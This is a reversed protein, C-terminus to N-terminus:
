ATVETFLGRGHLANISAGPRTGNALVVRKAGGNMAALAALMKPRMGDRVAGSALLEHVQRSTVLSVASSEDDPDVRLQDVDSLLLLASASMASAVAGAVFDANANVLVGDDFLSVPSIVPVAGAALLAELPGPSVDIARAVLGYRDDLASARIMSQDLGSLGSALVGRSNLAGVIRLNVLALVMAVVDMTATDTVRIGDSFTPVIGQAQLVANIQPGAGHVVIVDCGDDHLEVIDQALADLAAAFSSAADLAHGGMKIV